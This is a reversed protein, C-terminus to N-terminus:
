YFDRTKINIPGINFLICSSLFKCNTLSLIHTVPSVKRVDKWKNNFEANKFPQIENLIPGTFVLSSFTGLRFTSKRVIHTEQEKDWLLCARGLGARSSILCHWTNFAIPLKLCAIRAQLLLVQTSWLMIFNIFFIYSFILSITYASYLPNNYLATVMIASIIADM